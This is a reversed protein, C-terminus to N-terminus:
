LKSLTEKWRTIGQELEDGSSLPNYDVNLGTRKKLSEHANCRLGQIPSSLFTLVEDLPMEDHMKNALDYAKANPEILMTEILKKTEADNILSILKQVTPLITYFGCANLHGKQLHSKTGQRCNLRHTCGWIPCPCWDDSKIQERICNKM